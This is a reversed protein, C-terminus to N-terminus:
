LDDIQKVYIYYDHNISGDNPYENKMTFAPIDAWSGKETPKGRKKKLFSFLYGFM